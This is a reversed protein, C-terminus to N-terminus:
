HSVHAVELSDPCDIMRQPMVINAEVIESDQSNRDSPELLDAPMRGQIQPQHHNTEGDQLKTAHRHKLRRGQETTTIPACVFLGKLDGETTGTGTLGKYILTALVIKTLLMRAIWRM